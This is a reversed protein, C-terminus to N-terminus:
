FGGGSIRLDQVKKEGPALSFAYSAPVLQELFAPDWADDQAMDVVAAMRYSGIPLDDVSFSGDTGPRTTRIRRARPLWYETDAPFVVITYDPAPRGSADQLTGSVQQTIDTFTVVADSLNQNPQVQLPFDLIDRGDVLASKMQWNVPTFSERPTPVTGAIRYEGPIVNTITFTGDPAITTSPFGMSVNLGATPMPALSVRARTLDQPATANGEFAIRGTITMAPQLSLVVNDLNDGTVIVDTQAWFVPPQPGGDSMVMPPGDGSTQFVTMRRMEQGTEGSGAQVARATLTYRGPAVARYSFRGEADPRASNLLSNGLM